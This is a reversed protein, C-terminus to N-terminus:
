PLMVSVLGENSPWNPVNMITGNWNLEVFAADTASVFVDTGVVFPASFDVALSSAGDSEVDYMFMGVTGNPDPTNGDTLVESGDITLSHGLDPRFAGGIYRMALAVHGPGTTVNDTTMGAVLAHDPPALFRLLRNSRKFPPYYVHGVLTGDADVARFEYAVNRKLQFPAIRGQADATLTLTPTGRERASDGLEHVEIVGMAQPTNTGFTEAIGELTVQSQGCQVTRYEPAEDYLYQWLAEFADASAALTFHDADTFTIRNSEEVNVNHRTMNGIDIESSISLTAVDNPVMSTGSFNIYHSVKAAHDPDALYTTCHGTGQSHGMLVVKGFGTDARVKDILADLDQPPGGIIPISNYEVAVFRDQCYGNSGFLLAVNAINDGSGYTGHVFVIPEKSTDCDADAVVVPCNSDNPESGGDESCGVLALVAMWAAAKLNVTSM